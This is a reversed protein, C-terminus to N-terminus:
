KSFLNRDFYEIEFAYDLLDNRVTDNDPWFGFVKDVESLSKGGKNVGVKFEYPRHPETSGFWFCFPKGKPNDKLFTEFNAVYDIESIFKAPPILKKTSYAPGLLERKKGDIMGPDGPAWGKATYGVHYGNEILSEAYTKFKLPFFPVHNAAAELQWSTRGTLICSRSPACKANPTFANTFLVGQKAVRDFSPTKVWPCGYAGAHPFSQDDAICFLINPHQVKDPKAGLGAFPILFLCSAGLKIM